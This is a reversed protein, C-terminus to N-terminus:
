LATIDTIIGNTVTVSHTATTFSGTAGVNSGTVSLRVSTTSGIEFAGKVLYPLIYRNGSNPVVLTGEVYNYPSSVSNARIYNQDAYAGISASASWSLVTDYIYVAGQFSNPSTSESPSGVIISGGNASIYVSSGFSDNSSKDSAIIKSEQTWTSGSRTFVYVAGQQSTPSTSEFNSGIAAFNGDKSIAVSFGFYENSAADSATLKNSETWTSGSRTFVYVAGQDSNPSTDETYSGILLTSGDGSLSISNGFNSNSESDSALLKQTETWTSGSRTFVYVAGNNTNPSTDDTSGVVVINGNDSISVSKGFNDGAAIDSPVLKSQETWVGGSLTFIYAAGEYGNASIVKNKAGVVITRGDASIQVSSGFNDSTAADSAVLKQKETWTSGLRTFVYVAGKYIDLGSGQYDAGVIATNGDPSLSLSSGFESDTTLASPILQQQETWVGSVRTLVYAANNAGNNAGVLATNGDGSICVQDGFQNNNVPSSARLKQEIRNYLASVSV